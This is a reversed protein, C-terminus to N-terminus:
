AHSPKTSGLTPEEGRLLRAINERHRLMVLASMVIALLIYPRPAGTAAVLPPLSIAAALSALSVIRYWLLAIVFLGLAMGIPLPALAAWVGLSTSVGRGGRFGLFLSAISGLFAACGVVALYSPGTILARAVLTPILGKAIDAIFTLAAPLKGGGRAVNTMGINHSGIDRPDFGFWRGILVGSPISGCLYAAIVLLLFIFL